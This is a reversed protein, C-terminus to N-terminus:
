ETSEACGACLARERKLKIEPLVNSTVSPFYKKIYQTVYRIFGAPPAVLVCLFPNVVQGRQSSSTLPFTAWVQEFSGGHSSHFM